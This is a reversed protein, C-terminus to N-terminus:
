YQFPIRYVGGGCSIVDIASPRLGCNLKRYREYQNSKGCGFSDLPLKAVDKTICIIFGRLSFCDVIASEPGIGFGLRGLPVTVVISSCSSISCSVRIGGSGAVGSCRTRDVKSVADFTLDSGNDNDIKTVYAVNNGCLSISVGGLGRAGVKGCAM